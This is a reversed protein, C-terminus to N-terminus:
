ARVNEILFAIGSAVYKFDEYLNNCAEEIIEDDSMVNIANHESLPTIWKSSHMTERLVNVDVTPIFQEAMEILEVGLLEYDEIESPVLDKALFREHMEIMLRAKLRLTVEPKM